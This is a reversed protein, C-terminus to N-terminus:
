TECCMPLLQTKHIKYAFVAPSSCTQRPGTHTCSTPAAQPLPSCGTRHGKCSLRQVIGEVLQCQYKSYNGVSHLHLRNGQQTQLFSKVLFIEYPPILVEKESTHYSFGQMAAGLCTTVTFLTENGFKRAESRLQSTSTFRGFRVRSDEKAKIYLDKVGRHVQYCKHEGMSSQWEKLIQIATTLYFHFYKFSFNHRYHEPSIGATSTAWNLQSHLSSNMSYAMLVTAHSDRMERLLGVPSKLLAEQAKKWLRFYDKNAAIEKQFYDGQELEEMMEERCGLYQDDFSHLAMDMLIPSVAEKALVQSILLLLSGLTVLKGSDVWCVTFFM